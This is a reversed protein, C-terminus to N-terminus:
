AAKARSSAAGGSSVRFKRCPRRKAEPPAADQRALPSQSAPPPRLVPLVASRRPRPRVPHLRGPRLRARGPPAFTKWHNSFINGITPFNPATKGIIPFIKRRNELSQFFIEPRKQSVFPVFRSVFSSSFLFRRVIVVIESLQKRCQFAHFGSRPSPIRKSLPHKLCSPCSPVIKELPRASLEARRFSSSPIRSSLSLCVPCLPAGQPRLSLHRTFLPRHARQAPPVRSPPVRSSAADGLTRPLAPPPLGGVLENRCVARVTHGGWRHTARDM